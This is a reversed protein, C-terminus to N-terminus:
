KKGARKQTCYKHDYPTRGDTRGDTARDPITEFRSLLDDFNREECVTGNIDIYEYIGIMNDTAQGIM